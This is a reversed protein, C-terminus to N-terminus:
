YPFFNLNQKQIKSTIKNYIIYNDYDIFKYKWNNPMAILKKFCTNQQLIKNM